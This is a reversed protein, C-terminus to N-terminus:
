PKDYRLEAAAGSETENIKYKLIGETGGHRRPPNNNSRGHFREANQKGSAARVEDGDSVADVCAADRVRANSNDDGILRVCRADGGCPLAPQVRQHNWRLALRPFFVVM